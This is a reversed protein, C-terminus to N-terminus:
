KAGKKQLLHSNDTTELVSLVMLFSPQTADPKGKSIPMKEKPRNAKPLLAASHIPTVPCIGM